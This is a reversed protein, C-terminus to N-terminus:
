FILWRRANFYNLRNLSWLMFSSYCLISFCTAIFGLQKLVLYIYLISLYHLEYYTMILDNGDCLIEYVRWLCLFVVSVLSLSLICVYAYAVSSTKSTPVCVMSSLSSFFCSEMLSAFFTFNSDCNNNISPDSENSLRFLLTPSDISSVEIGVVYVMFTHLSYKISKLFM